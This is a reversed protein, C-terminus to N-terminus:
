RMASRLQLGWVMHLVAYADGAPGRDGRLCAAAPASDRARAM